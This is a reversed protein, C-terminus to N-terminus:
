KMFRTCLWAIAKENAENPLNHGSDFWEIEKGKGAAEYTLKTTSPLVVNDNKGNQFLVPRPAIKGSYLSTSLAYVDKKMAEPMTNVRGIGIDGGVCLVASKVRSDVATLVTGMMAGMSYGILGIRRNDVDKRTKLYDLLRRYDLIGQKALAAFKNFGAEGKREGHLPADLAAVAFGKQVLANGYRSIMSEKNSTYGHLLLILPYVGEAKPRMFLGPVQEGNTGVFRLHERFSADSAEEKLEVEPAKNESYDYYGKLEKWDPSKSEAKQAWAQGGYLLLGGVIGLVFLSRRTLKTHLPM